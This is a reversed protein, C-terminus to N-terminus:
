RRMGENDVDMCAEGSTPDQKRVFPDVRENYDIKVKECRKRHKWEWCQWVGRFHM